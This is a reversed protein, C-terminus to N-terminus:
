PLNGSGDFNRRVYDIKEWINDDIWKADWWELPRVAVGGVYVGFHLHDGGALGSTGTRGLVTESDVEDGENVEISSLHSYLTMLGMGHDVMVTKGYIGLPGRFVVVGSNSAKVRYHRTVSLDYGLHYQSDIVRGSMEYERLDAFTSGVMSNALQNFKGEWLIEGASNASVECVTDENSARVERNVKLFVQEYDEEKSIEPAYGYFSTFLPVVKREVFRESIEIKDNLYSSRSLRYSVSVRRENGAEDRALVNIAEDMGADHPYAFFAVFIYPNEFYGGYGKFFREGVKVGSETADGSVRYVVVGSGGHTLYQAPSLEDVEPPTFDLTVKKEFVTRNPPVFSGLFGDLFNDTAEVFFESPGSRIGLAAPNIKLSLEDSKVKGDYKKEALVSEVGYSDVLYVRVSSLGTGEDSVAVKLPGLGLVKLDKGDEVTVVPPTKEVLYSVKVGLVGLAILVLVVLVVKVSFGSNGFSGSM